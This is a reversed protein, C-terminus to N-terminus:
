PTCEPEELVYGVGRRTHILRSLGGEELKRRLQGVYVDIVNSSPEYSIDWVKQAITMRDHVRDPNRLFFQLLAFEKNTLRIEDGDRHVKRRHLDMEIPGYRVVLGEVSLM